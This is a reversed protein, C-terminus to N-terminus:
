HFVTRGKRKQAKMPGIGEANNEPLFFPLLLRWIIYSTILLKIAMPVILLCLPGELMLSHIQVIEHTRKSAAVMTLRRKFHLLDM